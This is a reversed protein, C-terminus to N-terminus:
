LELVYGTARSMILALAILWAACAVLWVFAHHMARWVRAQLSPSHGRPRIVRQSAPRPRAMVYKMSTPM